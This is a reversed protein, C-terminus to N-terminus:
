KDMIKSLDDGKKKSGASSGFFFNLVMLAGSFVFLDAAMEVLRRNEAPISITFLVIVFAIAGLIVVSALIYVFNRTMWDKSQIAAKQMERANSTNENNIKLEELYLKYDEQEYAAVEKLLAPKEINPIEPSQSILATLIKAPPFFDDAFDLIAPLKEKLVKGIKTDKFKKKEKPM